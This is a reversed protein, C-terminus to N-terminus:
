IIIVIYKHVHNNKKSKIFKSSTIILSHVSNISNKKSIYMSNVNVDLYIGVIYSIYTCIHICIYGMYTYLYICYVASPVGSTAATGERNRRANRRENRREKTREKTRENTRSIITIQADLKIICFGFWVLVLVMVLVSVLVFCKCRILM